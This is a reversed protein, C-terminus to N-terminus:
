FGLGGGPRPTPYTYSTEPPQQDHGSTPRQDAATAGAEFAALTEDPVGSHYATNGAAPHDSDRAAQFPSSTM